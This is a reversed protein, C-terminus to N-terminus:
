IASDWTWGNSTILSQIKGEIHIPENWITRLQPSVKEHIWFVHPSSSAEGRLQKTILFVHWDFTINRTQILVELLGCHVIYRNCNRTYFYRTKASWYGDVRWGLAWVSFHSRKGIRSHGHNIEACSVSRLWDNVSTRDIRRKSPMAPMEKERRNHVVFLSNNKWLYTGVSSGGNWTKTWTSHRPHYEGKRSTGYQLIIEMKGLKIGHRIKMRQRILYRFVLFPHVSIVRSLFHVFM